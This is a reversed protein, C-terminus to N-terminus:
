CNHWNTPLGWTIPDLRLTEWACRIAGSLDDNKRAQTGLIWWMEPYSEAAKPLRRRWEELDDDRAEVVLITGLQVHAEVFDPHQEIIERLLKEGQRMRMHFTHLRARGMLPILDGPVSEEFFAM